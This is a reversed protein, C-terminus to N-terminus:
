KNWADKNLDRKISLTATDYKRTQNDSILLYEQQNQWFVNANKWEMVDFVKM